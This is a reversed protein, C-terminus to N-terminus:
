NQKIDMHNCNFFFFFSLKQTTPLTGLRPHGNQSPSPHVQLFKGTLTPNFKTKFLYFCICGKSLEPMVRLAGSVLPM